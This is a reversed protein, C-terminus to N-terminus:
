HRSSVDGARSLAGSRPNTCFGGVKRFSESVSVAEPQKTKAKEEEIAREVSQPTIYYKRENPDFYCDLRSVGNRDKQCWNTISRETRPVGSNEFMRAVERVTYIHNESRESLNPFTGFPESHQPVNGFDEMRQQEQSQEMNIYQLNCYICLLVTPFLHYFIKIDYSV